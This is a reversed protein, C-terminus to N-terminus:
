RIELSKVFLIKKFYIFADELSHIRMGYLKNMQHIMSQCSLIISCVYHYQVKVGNFILYSKNRYGLYLIKEANLQYQYIFILRTQTIQRDIFRNIEPLTFKM